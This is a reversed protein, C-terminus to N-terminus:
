ILLVQNALHLRVPLLLLGSSLSLQQEPGFGVLPLQDNPLAM